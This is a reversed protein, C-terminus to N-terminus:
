FSGPILYISPETQCLPRQCHRDQPLLLKMVSLGVLHGHPGLKLAKFPTHRPEYVSHLAQPKKELYLELAESVREPGRLPSTPQLFLIHDFHKGEKELVELCHFIVLDSTAGDTAMEPPRLLDRAGFARAVELIRQDDSSVIVEDVLPCKSAAEISYALLPKGCVDIINKGPIGKSGGRAPVIALISDSM